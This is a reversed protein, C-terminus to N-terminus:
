EDSKKRIKHWTQNKIDKDILTKFKTETIELDDENSGKLKVYLSYM